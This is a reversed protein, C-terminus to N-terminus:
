YDFFKEKKLYIVGTGMLGVGFFYLGWGLWSFYSGDGSGINRKSQYKEILDITEQSMLDQDYNLNIDIMTELYQMDKEEQYNYVGIQFLITLFIITMGMSLFFKGPTELNIFLM